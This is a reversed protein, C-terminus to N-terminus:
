VNYVEKEHVEFSTVLREPYKLSIKWSLLRDKVPLRSNFGEKEMYRFEFLDNECSYMNADLTLPSFCHSKSGRTKLAVHPLILSKKAVLAEDVKQRLEDNYVSVVDICIATDGGFTETKDRFLIIDVPILITEIKTVPKEFNKQQVVGINVIKVANNRKGKHGKDGKILEKRRSFTEQEVQFIFLLVM